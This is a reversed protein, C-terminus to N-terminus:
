SIMMFLDPDRSRIIKYAACVLVGFVMSYKCFHSWLM